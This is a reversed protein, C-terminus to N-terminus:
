LVERYVVNRTEGGPAYIFLNNPSGVRSCGVYFQGHTFCPPELFLGAVKLSQGQAKNISMAFCVRVPFQLRKFDFPLNADSPILPIRPLFVDEGHNPGTVITAEICNRMLKKVICRTGNCLRPPDVNRLVMIPVGVKLQLIHPPMGSPELSNLFETPYTVVAQQDPVTDVSKYVVEDGPFDQLLQKNVHTVSDNRPALIARECLWQANQFNFPLNGFVAAKLGDLTETVTGGGLPIQICDAASVIPIKAEGIRLLVNAFTGAQTDAYLHVRMNTSLHVVDVHEWLQSEKFCADVENARTGGRVVPLTQRFDGSFVMAIGGFLMTNARIDQFTREVAELALKNAMTAEDWVIVKCKRILTAMASGKKISCVQKEKPMLHIPIKFTSHATRGGQLLTAAIGSSATALAIDGRARIKALLLNLLFTKGTGGPADIFLIGGEDGDVTHMVM